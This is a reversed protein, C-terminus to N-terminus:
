SKASDNAERLFSKPIIKSIASAIGEPRLLAIVILILGYIFLDPGGLEVFMVRLLESIPILILAGLMPGTIFDIGGFLSITIIKFSTSMGTLSLPEIYLIYQAYITGCLATFFASIASAIVKYKVTNIGLTIAVDEDDRIAKLYYGIKSRHIKHVIFSILLLLNLIFLCFYAKNEFQMYTLSGGRIYPIIIGAPGKTLEEFNLLAYLLVQSFAITILSFYPGRLRLGIYGLISGLSMAFLGGILMGFWPTLNLNILLLSSTYAGISFFAAHGFSVQGAYALIAWAEGLCAFLLSMFLIHLIYKDNIALCVFEICVIIMIVLVAHRNKVLKM